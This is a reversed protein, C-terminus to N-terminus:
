VGPIFFLILVCCGVFYLLFLPMLIASYFHASKGQESLLQLLALSGYSFGFFYLVIYHPSSFVSTLFPAVM